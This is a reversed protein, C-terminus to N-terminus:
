VAVTEIDGVHGISSIDFGNDRRVGIIQKGDFIQRKTDHNDRNHGIKESYIHKNVFLICVWNGSM